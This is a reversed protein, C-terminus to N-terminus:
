NSNNHCSGHMEEQLCLHTHHLVQERHEGSHSNLPTRWKHRGGQSQALLQHFVNNCYTAIMVAKSTLSTKCTDLSLLLQFFLVSLRTWSTGSCTAQHPLIFIPVSMHLRSWEITSSLVLYLITQMIIWLITLSSSSELRRVQFDQIWSESAKHLQRRTDGQNFVVSEVTIGLSSSIAHIFSVQSFLVTTPQLQMGLVYSAGIDVTLVSKKPGQCEDCRKLHNMRNWMSVM